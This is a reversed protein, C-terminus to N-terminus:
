PHGTDNYAPTVGPSPTPLRAATRTNSLLRRLLSDQRPMATALSAAVDCAAPPASAAAGRARKALAGGVPPPANVRKAGALFHDPHHDADCPWQQSSRFALADMLASSELSGTPTRHCSMNPPTSPSSPKGVCPLMTHLQAGSPHSGHDAYLGNHSLRLACRHQTPWPIIGDTDTITVTYDNTPRLASAETGTDDLKTLSDTIWRRLSQVDPNCTIKAVNDTPKTSAAADEATFWSAWNSCIALQTGGM